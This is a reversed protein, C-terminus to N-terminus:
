SQQQIEVKFLYMMGKKCEYKSGKKPTILNDTADILHLTIPENNNNRVEVVDGDIVELDFPSEEEEEKVKEGNLFLVVGKDGTYSFKLNGKSIYVSSEELSVPVGTENSKVTELVDNNVFIQVLVVAGFSFAIVSILLKEFLSISKKLIGCELVFYDVIKLM